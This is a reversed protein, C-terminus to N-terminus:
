FFPSSAPVSTMLGSNMDRRISDLRCKQETDPFLTEPKQVFLLLLVFRQCNLFCQRYHGPFADGLIINPKPLIREPHLQFVGLVSDILHTLGVYITTRPGRFPSAPNKDGALSQSIEHNAEILLNRINDTVDRGDHSCDPGPLQLFSFM